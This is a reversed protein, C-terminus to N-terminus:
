ELHNFKKVFGCYCIIMKNLLAYTEKINYDDEFM